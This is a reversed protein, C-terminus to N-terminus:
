EWQHFTQDCGSLLSQVFWTSDGNLSDTEQPPTPLYSAGYQPYQQQQEQQALRSQLHMVIRELQTNQSQLQTNQSQLHTNQSQLQTNQLQLKAVELQVQRLKVRKELHLISEETFIPLAMLCPTTDQRALLIAGSVFPDQCVSSRKLRSPLWCASLSPCFLLLSLSPALPLRSTLSVPLSLSAASILWPLFAAISLFH